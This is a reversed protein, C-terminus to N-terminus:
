MPLIHSNRLFGSCGQTIGLLEGNIQIIENMNEAFDLIWALGPKLDDM